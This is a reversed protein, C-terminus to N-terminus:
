IFWPSAAERLVTIENYIFSIDGLKSCKVKDIAKIARLHETGEERALFIEAYSGEGLKGMIAFYKEVTLSKTLSNIIEEYKAVKLQLM